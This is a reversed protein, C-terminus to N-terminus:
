SKNTILNPFVFRAIFRSLSHGDKLDSAPRNIIIARPEGACASVTRVWVMLRRLPQFATKRWTVGATRSGATTNLLVGTANAAIRRGVCVETSNMWFGVVMLQFFSPQPTQYAGLRGSAKRELKCAM